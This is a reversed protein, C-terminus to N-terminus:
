GIIPKIGAKQCAKYLEISGNMVGHDTLGLAPQGFEAARDVLGQIKCAGDLLSYESHVHLHVAPSSPMPFAIKPDPTSPEDSQLNCIASRPDPTEATETIRRPPEPSYRRSPGIRERGATM